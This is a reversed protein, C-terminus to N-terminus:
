WMVLGIRCASSPRAAGRGLPQDQHDLALDGLPDRRRGPLHAVQRDEHLVVGPDPDGEADRRGGELRLRGDLRRDDHDLRVVGVVAQLGLGLVLQPPEDLRGEALPALHDVVDQDALQRDVGAPDGRGQGRRADVRVPAGLGERDALPQGQALRETREPGIPTPAAVPGVREHAPRGGIRGAPERRDDAERRGLEVQGQGDDPPPRVAVVHEMRDEHREPQGVPQAEARGAGIAVGEM